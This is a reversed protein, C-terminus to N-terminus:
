WTPGSAARPASPAPTVGPIQGGEDDWTDVAEPETEEATISGSALTRSSALIDTPPASDKGKTALTFAVAAEAAPTSPPIVLLELDDQHGATHLSILHVDMSRFWGVKVVRGRVALRRPIDTWTDPHLGIRMIMMDLRGDVEIVLGPLAESADDSFPWWGGDVAGRRCLTPDLRVRQAPSDVPPACSGPFAATPHPFTQTPTM